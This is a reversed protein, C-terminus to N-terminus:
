DWAAKAANSTGASATTNMASTNADAKTQQSAVKAKTFTEDRHFRHVNGAEDVYRIGSKAIDNGSEDKEVWSNEEKWEGVAPMHPTVFSGYALNGPIDLFTQTANGQIKNQYQLFLDLPKKSVIVDQLLSSAVQALGAFSTIGTSFAAKVQEETKGSAKVYHTVLAKAQKIAEIKGAQYDPSNADLVQKGRYYVKGGEVTPDYIRTNKVTGNINFEVIIAPNGETNGAGTLNTYEFRTLLVNQNLGFKMNSATAQLSTDEDSQYVGWLNQLDSM